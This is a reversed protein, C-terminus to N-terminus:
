WRLIVVGQSGAGGTPTVSNDGASGGGGGGYKHGTVGNSSPQPGGAGGRGLFSNGGTGGACNSRTAVVPCGAGGDGGEVDVVTSFGSSTGGTGGLGGVAGNDGGVTGTNATLYISSGITGFTSRACVTGVFVQVTSTASVDVVGNQYEGAGGGGGSSSQSGGPSVSGGACGGAQVEVFLKTVGSPLVVTSTGTSTVIMANKGIQYAPFSGIYTSSAMQFQKTTTAPLFNQDIAKTTLDTVPIVNGATASNYTTTALSSPLVTRAGTSGTRNSSAAQAGTALQVIGAVTESSTSNSPTIPFNTFTTQGTFSWGGSITEDNQKVAYQTYYCPSNSLIFQTQGPYAHALTTSAVCGGTGPTRSLGRTVGTLTATGNANQTIGTASIFESNGSSPSITGYTTSSNIYSMTYPINSSPERFSTLTITSQSSSVSSQLTYTGGGTPNFSAQSTHPALLVIAIFVTFFISISIAFGPIFKM